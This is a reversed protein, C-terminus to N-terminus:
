KKILHKLGIGKGKKRYKVWDLLSLWAYIIGCGIALLALLGLLIAQIVSGLTWIFMAIM